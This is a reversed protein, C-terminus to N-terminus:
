FLTPQRRHVADPRPLTPASAPPRDSVRPPANPTSESLGAVVACWDAISWVTRRTGDPLVVSCGWPSDPTVEELPLFRGIAVLRAKGGRDIAFALDCADSMNM